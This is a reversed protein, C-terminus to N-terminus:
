LIYKVKNVAGLVSRKQTLQHLMIDTSLSTETVIFKIFGMNENFSLRDVLLHWVCVIREYNCAHLLLAATHLAIRYGQCKTVDGPKHLRPLATRAQRPTRLPSRLAHTRAKAALISLSRPSSNATIVSDSRTIQELLYMTGSGQAVKTRTEYCYQTM